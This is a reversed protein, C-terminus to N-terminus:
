KSKEPLLSELYQIARAMPYGDWYQSKKTEISKLKAINQAREPSSTNRHATLDFVADIYPIYKNPVFLHTQSYIQEFKPAQKFVNIGYYNSRGNNQNPRERHISYIPETPITPDYLARVTLGPNWGGFEHVWPTPKLEECVKCMTQLLALFLLKETQEVSQTAAKSERPQKIKNYLAYYLRLLQYHASFM